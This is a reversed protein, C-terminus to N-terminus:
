SLAAHQVNLHIDCKHPRIKNNAKYLSRLYIQTLMCAQRIIEAPAYNIHLAPQFTTIVELLLKLFTAALLTYKIKWYFNKYMSKNELHFLFVLTSSIKWCKSISCLFWKASTSLRTRLEQSQSVIPMLFITTKGLSWYRRSLAAMFILGAKFKTWCDRWLHSASLYALRCSPSQWSVTPFVHGLVGRSTNWGTTNVTKFKWCYKWSTSDSNRFLFSTLWIRARIGTVFKCESVHSAMEAIAELAQAAASNLSPTKLTYSGLWYGVCSSSNSM